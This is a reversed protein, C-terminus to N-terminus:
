HVTWCEHYQRSLMEPPLTNEIWYCCTAHVDSLSAILTCIRHQMVTDKINVAHYNFKFWADKTQLLLLKYKAGKKKSSGKVWWDSSKKTHLARVHYYNGLPPLHVQRRKFLNLCVKPITKSNANEFKLRLWGEKPLCLLDVNTTCSNELQDQSGIKTRMFMVLSILIKGTLLKRNLDEGDRSLVNM